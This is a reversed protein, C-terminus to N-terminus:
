ACPSRRIAIPTRWCRRTTSPTSRACSTSGGSRILTAAWRAGQVKALVTERQRLFNRLVANVLGKAAPEGLAGCARVAHDVIAYPAARTHILQYLAVRLLHRVREDKLPRELLDELIADVQGLFRLTGYCADQVTARDQPTLEGAHAWIARLEADLSRGSLVRGVVQAALRQLELM